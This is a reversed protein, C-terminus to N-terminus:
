TLSQHLVGNIQYLVCKKQDFVSSKQYASNNQNIIRCASLSCEDRFMNPSKQYLLAPTTPKQYPIACVGGYRENSLYVGDKIRYLAYKILYLAQKILHLAYKMFSLASQPMSRKLYIYHLCSCLARRIYYPARKICIRCRQYFMYPTNSLSFPMNSLVYPSNSEIYRLSRCLGRTIARKISVACAAVYPQKSIIHLKPLTQKISSLARRLSSLARLSLPYKPYMIPSDQLMCAEKSFIRPLCHCLAKPYLYPLSRTM